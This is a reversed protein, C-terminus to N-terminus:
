PADKLIILLPDHDSAPLPVGSARGRVEIFGLAELDQMESKLSELSQNSMAAIEAYSMRVQDHDDRQLDLVGYLGWLEPRGQAASM